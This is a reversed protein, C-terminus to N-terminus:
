PHINIKIIIKGGNDKLFIILQNQIKKIDYGPNLVRDLIEFGSGPNPDSQFIFRIWLLVSINDM